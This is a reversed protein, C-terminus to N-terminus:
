CRAWFTNGFLESSSYDQKLEEAAETWDICTFPWKIDRPMECCDEALQQAHEEFSDDAILTEGHIWDSARIDDRFEKLADLEAVEEEDLADSKDEDDARGQLYDIRAEIDRSDLFDESGDIPDLEKSRSM